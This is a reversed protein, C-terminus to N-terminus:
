DKRCFPFSLNIMETLWTGVQSLHFLLYDTIDYHKDGREGRSKGTACTYHPYVNKKVSIDFFMRLVFEKAAKADGAPGEFEPFYDALHSHAIKEELLDTKNLFLIISSQLFWEYDIITKYLATSEELRNEHTSELLKQDYESLAVLFVLSTVNEFSHIWKRRESRQGGVDVLRFNVASPRIVFSYELIGTTPARARLIDEQTPLYGPEAIRHVNSLFFGASDSLYFQNRRSYSEQVGKDSWLDNVLAVQRPALGCVTMYDVSSIEKAKAGSESHQYRLGLAELGRVLNQMGMIVNQYVLQAFGKKDDNSYGKGHIIRMQKIFTSKGSEGTGLLLLKFEKRSQHKYKRLERNIRKDIKRAEREESSICCDLM